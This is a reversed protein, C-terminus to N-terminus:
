ANELATVRAELSVYLQNQTTLDNQINTIQGQITEIDSECDGVRSTLASLSSALTEVDHILGQNDDGLIDLIHTNDGADAIEKLKTDLESMTNNWDILWAPKDTAILWPLGYNPTTHTANTNM